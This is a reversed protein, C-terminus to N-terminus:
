QLAGLSGGAPDEKRNKEGMRKEIKIERKPSKM